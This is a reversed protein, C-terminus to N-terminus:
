SASRTWFKQSTVVLKGNCCCQQRSSDCDMNPVRVTMGEIAEELPIGLNQEEFARGFERSIPKRCKRLLWVSDLALSHGARLSRGLLELAKPCNSTLAVSAVLAACTCGSFRYSVQPSQLSPHSTSPLRIVLCIAAGGAACMVCITLFKSGSMQVDAQELLHTFNGLKALLDDAFTSTDELPSSLLSPRDSNGSRGKGKGTMAQLRDEALRESTPRLAVAVGGVLAAVCVGVSIMIIIPLM